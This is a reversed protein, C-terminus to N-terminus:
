LEPIVFIDLFRFFTSSCICSVKSPVKIESAFYCSFSQLSLKLFNETAGQQILFFSALQLSSLPLGSSLMNALM